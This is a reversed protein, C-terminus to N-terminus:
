ICISIKIFIYKFQHNEMLFFVCFFNRVFFIRNEESKKKQILAFDTIKKSFNYNIIAISEMEALIPTIGREFDYNTRCQIKRHSFLSFNSKRKKM